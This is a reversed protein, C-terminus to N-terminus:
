IIDLMSFVDVVVDKTEPLVSVSSEDDSTLEM